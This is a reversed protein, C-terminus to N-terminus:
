IGTWIPLEQFIDLSLNQCIYLDGWPQPGPHCLFTSGWWDLLRDVVVETKELNLKLQNVQMWNWDVALYWSLVTVEPGPDFSFSLYIQSDGACQHCWLVNQQEIEGLPRMYVNFLLFSLISGRPVKCFLDCFSLCWKGM